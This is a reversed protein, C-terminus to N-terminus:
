ERVDGHTHAMTHAYWIFEIFDCHTLTSRNNRRFNFKKKIFLSGPLTAYVQLGLVRLLITLRLGAQAVYQSGM